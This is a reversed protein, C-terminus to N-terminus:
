APASALSATEDPRLFHRCGDLEQGAV